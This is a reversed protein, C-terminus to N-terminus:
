VQVVTVNRTRRTGVHTLGVTLVGFTEFRRRIGRLVSIPILSVVPVVGAALAVWCLGAVLPAFRSCVAGRVVSSPVVVIASPTTLLIAPM